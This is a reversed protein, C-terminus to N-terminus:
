DMQQLLHRVYLNCFRIADALIKKQNIRWRVALAHMEEGCGVRVRADEDVTTAFGRLKDECCRGLYRFAAVEVDADRPLAIEGRALRRLAAPEPAADGVWRRVEMAGRVRAHCLLDYSPFGGQYVSLCGGAVGGTVGGNANGGGNANRTNLQQDLAVDEQPNDDM